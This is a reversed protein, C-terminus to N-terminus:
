LRYALYALLLAILGLTWKIVAAQANLSDLQSYVSVLDQRALVAAQQAREPPFLSGLAEPPLENELNVIHGQLASARKTWWGM